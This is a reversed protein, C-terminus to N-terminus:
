FPIGDDEQEIQGSLVKICWEDLPGKSPEWTGTYNELCWQGSGLQVLRTWEDTGFHLRLSWAAPDAVVEIACMFPVAYLANAGAIERAKEAIAKHEELKRLHQEQERRETDWAFTAVAEAVRRSFEGDYNGSM